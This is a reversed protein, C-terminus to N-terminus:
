IFGRQGAQLLNRACEQVISELRSVMRLCLSTFIQDHLHNQCFNSEHELLHGNYVQCREALKAGKTMSDPTFTEGRAARHVARVPVNSM